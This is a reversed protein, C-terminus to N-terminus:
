RWTNGPGPKRMRITNSLRRASPSRAQWYSPRLRMDAEYLEGETTPATLGTILRQTLAHVLNTSRRRSDYIVIIDLDSGATMEEGGLKGM